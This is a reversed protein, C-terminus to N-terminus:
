YQAQNGKTFPSEPCKAILKGDVLLGTPGEDNRVTISLTHSGPILNASFNVGYPARFGYNAQGGSSVPTTGLVQDDMRVVINNDGYAIGEYSVVPPLKCNTPVNIKLSYTYTGPANSGTYVWKGTGTPTKWGPVVTPTPVVSGQASTWPATGTALDVVTSKGNACVCCPLNISRGKGPRIRADASIPDAQAEIQGVPAPAPANGQAQVTSAGLGLGSPAQLIDAAHAGGMWAMQMLAVLALRRLPLTHRTSRQNVPADVRATTSVSNM